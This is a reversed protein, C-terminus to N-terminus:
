SIIMKLFETELQMKSVNCHLYFVTCVGHAEATSHLLAYVSDPKPPNIMWGATCAILREPVSSFAMITRYSGLYEHVVSTGVYIALTSCKKAKFKM